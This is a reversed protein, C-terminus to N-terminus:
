SEQNNYVTEDFPTIAPEAAYGLPPLGFLEEVSLLTSFHNFYGTENVSGPLIYPSILVMGVRGGGGTPKVPGSVLEAPPAATDELNPYEPTACCSSPDAEPGSQPAGTFTIAILGGTAYAPSKEIEPVVTQLFSEAGALGAPRGPACPLESGDHCANPVIYSLSPTRKANALDPALSELGGDRKACEGGDLLSHFYVFPNRWTTYGDGESPMSDPDLTGPAPHRCTTPQGPGGNGIDEVYAKWTLKAATLQGALTETEPPYVCGEGEVQEMLGITAPAFETYETCDTATQHTPGQGSLLAIENSLGSPGVAYYNSLLEGQTPLTQSFYTSQSAAGFTREYGQESLVIMFVHSIPPLTPEPPLEPPPESPPPSEEPVEEPAEEPAEPTASVQAPVPPAPAPAAEGEVETVEPVQPAATKKGLVVTTLGASQALQNTLSGVIVGFALLAMVAVAAAQPTPMYDSAERDQEGDAVAGPDGEPGDPPSAPTAAKAKPRVRDLWNGVVAPLAMSRAGCALCYRQGPALPAGCGSCTAAGGKHRAPENSM